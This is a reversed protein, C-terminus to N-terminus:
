CVSIICTLKQAFISKNQADIKKTSRSVRDVWGLLSARARTMDILQFLHEFRNHCSKECCKPLYFVNVNQVVSARCTARIHICYKFHVAFLGTPLTSLLQLQYTQWTNVQIHIVITFNERVDVEGYHTCINGRTKTPEARENQRWRKKGKEGNIAACKKRCADATLSM